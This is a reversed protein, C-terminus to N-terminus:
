FQIRPAITGVVHRGLTLDALVEEDRPEQAEQDLTQSEHELVAVGGVLDSFCASVLDIAVFELNDFDHDLEDIPNWSASSFFKQVLSILGSTMSSRYTLRVVRGSLGGASGTDVINRGTVMASQDFFSRPSFRLM